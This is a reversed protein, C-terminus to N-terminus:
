SRYCKVTIISFLKMIRYYVYSVMVVLSGKDSHEMITVNYPASVFQPYEDNINILNIIVTTTSPFSGSGVIVDSLDEAMVQLVITVCM